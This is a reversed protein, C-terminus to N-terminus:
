RCLGKKKRKKKKGVTAAIERKFPRSFRTQVYHEKLKFRKGNLIKYGRKSDRSMWRMSCLGKFHLIGDKKLGMAFLKPLLSAIRIAKERSVGLKKQFLEYLERMAVNGDTRLPRPM